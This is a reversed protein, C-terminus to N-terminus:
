LIPHLVAGESISLPGGLPNQIETEPHLGLCHFITAMLDESGVRGEKPYAGMNDSAGFVQGGCVGGGALVSSFVHGWHDRGPGGGPRRNGPKRNMKPTRGMEGTCVVLTEDLLGRSELDELLASFAQDLPPNLITKLRITQNQHTDWMTAFGLEPSDFWPWNVQVLPVGAEVLRRALLVSQGFKNRGYRNRMESKERALDFAERARPTQLLDFAQQQVINFRAGGDSRSVADLHRDVQKLLRQRNDFRLPPMEAGLDLENIRYNAASPDCLLTWPDAVRGLFGASEGPNENGAPSIRQPLVMAAPLDGPRQYLSRVVGGVNPFDNPAGLAFDSGTQVFRRGTLMTYCGGNHSNDNTSVARLICYKDAQLALQPLLENIRVGPLNTPISQFEGRVEAVADPKPDWTEHQPQGGYMFLFICSKARGFTGAAATATGAQLLSPLSLGFMGLGGVHLWERRTLGDCLRRPKDHITLM